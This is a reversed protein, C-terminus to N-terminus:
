GCTGEAQLDEMDMAGYECIWGVLGGMTFVLTGVTSYYKSNFMVHILPGWPTWVGHQELTLQVELAQMNGSQQDWKEAGAM